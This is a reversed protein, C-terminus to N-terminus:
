VLAQSFIFYLNFNEWKQFPQIGCVFDWTVDCSACHFLLLVHIGFQWIRKTNILPVHVHLESHLSVGLTDILFMDVKVKLNRNNIVM